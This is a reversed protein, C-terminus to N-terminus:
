LLNILLLFEDKVIIVCVVEFFYHWINFALLSAQQQNRFEAAAM